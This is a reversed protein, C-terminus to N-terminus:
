GAHNVYVDYRVRTGPYSMTPTPGLPPALRHRKVVVRKRAVTRAISFLEEADADDGVLERCLRMEKKALASKTRQPYMPDLYVVDPRFRDVKSLGELGELLIARSDGHVWTLRNLIEQLSPDPVQAARDLAERVWGAIQPSREVAIVECGLCALLFADRGLGATADVVTPPTGRIGVAKAIPQSRSGSFRRRSASPGRVFDIRPVISDAEPVIIISDNLARM